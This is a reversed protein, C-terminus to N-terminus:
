RLKWLLAFPPTVLASRDMITVDISSPVDQNGPHFTMRRGHFDGDKLAPFVNFAEDVLEDGIVSKAKKVAQVVDLLVVVAGNEDIAPGVAHNVHPIVGHSEPFGNQGKLM